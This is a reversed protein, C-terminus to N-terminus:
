ARVAARVAKPATAPRSTWVANLRFWTTEGPAAQFPVNTATYRFRFAAATGVCLEGDWAGLSREPETLERWLAREEAAEPVGGFARILNDYWLDWDDPALVRLDTGM